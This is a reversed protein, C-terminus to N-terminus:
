FLNVNTGWSDFAVLDFGNFKQEAYKDELTTFIWNPFGSRCFINYTCMNERHFHIYIENWSSDCTKPFVFYGFLLVKFYIKYCFLTEYM